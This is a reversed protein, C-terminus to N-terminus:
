FGAGATLAFGSGPDANGTVRFRYGATIRFNGDAVPMRLTVLPGADLRSLGPQAAARLDGGIALEARGSHLIPRALEVAGDVYLDRTEAGVIGAQAYGDLMLGAPLPLRSVGGAVGLAWADRGGDGLDVRREAILELPVARLPRLSLGIGAESAQPRDLARSLRLNVAIAAPSRTVPM